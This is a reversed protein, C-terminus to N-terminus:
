NTFSIAYDCLVYGPRGEMPSADPFRGLPMQSTYPLCRPSWAAMVICAAQGLFFTCSLLALGEVYNTQLCMQHILCFVDSVVERPPPM